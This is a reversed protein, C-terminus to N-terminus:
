SHHKLARLISRPLMAAIAQKIARQSPQYQFSQTALKLARWRNSERAADSAWTAVQAARRQATKREASSLPWESLVHQFVALTSTFMRFSDRTTNTSHNYRHLLPRKLFAIAAIRSLRLGFYWDLSVRLDFTGDAYPGAGEYARRRYITCPPALIHGGLMMRLFEGRRFCYLDGEQHAAQSLDVWTAVDSKRIQRGDPFIDIMDSYIVDIDPRITLASMMERLYTPVWWDDCDFQAIVDTSAHAVAVDRAQEAGRNPTRLVRGLFSGETILREAITGSGDTSGDDVIVLEFDRFEQAALSSFARPLFTGGNFVPM